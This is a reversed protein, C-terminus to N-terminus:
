ECYALKKAKSLIDAPIDELKLDLAELAPQVDGTYGYEHNNLEYILSDLLLKRDRKIQKREAKHRELMSIFDDVKTKRIYGGGGISVVKEGKPLNLKAIGKTFQENSFAFFIGQFENVEKQHKTKINTYKM